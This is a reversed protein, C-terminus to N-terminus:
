RWIQWWHKKKLPRNRKIETIKNMTDRHMIIHQKGIETEDEIEKILQSPMFSKDGWYVKIEKDNKFGHLDKLLLRKSEEYEM